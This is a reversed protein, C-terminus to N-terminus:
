RHLDRVPGGDSRSAPRREGRRAVSTSSINSSASSTGSRRAGPNALPEVIAQLAITENRMAFARVTQGPSWVPNDEGREFPTSTADRRIKEGDDVVWVSPAAGAAGVWLVSAAMSLLGLWSAGGPM